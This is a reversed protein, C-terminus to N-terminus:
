LRLSQVILVTEIVIDNTYFTLCSLSGQAIAILAKGYLAYIFM